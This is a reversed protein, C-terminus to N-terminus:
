DQRMEVYYFEGYLIANHNLANCYVLYELYTTYKPQSTSLLDGAFTSCIVRYKIQRQQCDNCVPSGCTCKVGGVIHDSSAM